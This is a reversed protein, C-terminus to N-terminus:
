PPLTIGILDQDMFYRFRQDAYYLEDMSSSAVHGDHYVANVVGEHVIHVRASWDGERNAYVVGMM